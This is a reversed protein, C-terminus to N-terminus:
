KSARNYVELAKNMGRMGYTMPDYIIWGTDIFTQVVLLEVNEPQKKLERDLFDQAKELMKAMKEKDSSLGFSGLSNTLAVYYGPLWDDQSNEAIKEFIVTSEEFNGQEFLKIGKKMDDEYSTQGSVITSLILWAIFLVFRIMIMLKNICHTSKRLCLNCNKINHSFIDSRVTM